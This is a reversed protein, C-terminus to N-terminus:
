GLPCDSRVSLRMAPWRDDQASVPTVPSAQSPVRKELNWQGPKDDESSVSNENSVWLHDGQSWSKVAKELHPM